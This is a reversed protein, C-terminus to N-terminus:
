VAEEMGEPCPDLKVQSTGHLEPAMPGRSTTKPLQLPVGAALLKPPQEKAGPEAVTPGTHPLAAPIGVGGIAREANAPILPSPTTAPLGVEM